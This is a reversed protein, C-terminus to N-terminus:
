DSFIETTTSLIIYEFHKAWQQYNTNDVTSYQDVGDKQRSIYVDHTDKVNEETKKLEKIFRIVASETLMDDTKKLLLTDVIKYM